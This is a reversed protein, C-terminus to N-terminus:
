AELFMEGLVADWDAGASQRRIDEVLEGGDALTPVGGNPTIAYQLRELERTMWPRIEEGRLLHSFDDQRPRIRLFWGQARGGTAIVTGDIPALVRVATGQVSMRWAPGNARLETGPSPLEVGATHGIIREALADLGVTCTGDEERRVWTHGRHYMRDRPMPLGDMADGTAEAPLHRSLFEPHGTCSGCAFGHSCTRHQVEGTLEHRCARADSPLDDFEVHWRVADEDKKRFDRVTRLLAAVLTSAIVAAVSFFVGLFILHGASWRFEYVWPFM